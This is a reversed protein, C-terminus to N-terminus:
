FLSNNNYALISNKNSALKLVRTLCLVFMIHIGYMITYMFTIFIEDNYGTLNFQLVNRTMNECSSAFLGPIRPTNRSCTTSGTRRVDTSACGGCSSFDKKWLSKLQDSLEKYPVVLYKYVM